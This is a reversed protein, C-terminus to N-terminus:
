FLNIFSKAKDIKNLAIRLVRSDITDRALLYIISVIDTQGPRVLRGNLQDVTEADYDPTFWVLTSGGFQLNLGHALSQRHCLVVHIRGANWDEIDKPTELKRANPFCKKLEQYESIFEYAVMVGRDATEIIEKLAEMKANHFASYATREVDTYVYGSALQRLKIGRTSSAFAVLTKDSAFAEKGEEEKFRLVSDREFQQYESLRSPPLDIYRVEHLAEPMDAGKKVVHTIHKIAEYIETDAGARLEYVTVKGPLNYKVQMYRTRFETLTKGLSKGADLLFVQHWLKEFGGYALTGTMLVRRQVGNCIRRAEKSRDSKKNGFLSSEDGVVMDWCGHPIDKIRTVSCVCVNFGDQMLHLKIDASTKCFAINYPMGFKRAEQVWTSMAVRKPAIILANKIRGLYSQSMLATLVSLTKGSAIPSILLLNPKDNIAKVIGKQYDHLLM